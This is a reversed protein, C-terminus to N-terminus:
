ELKQEEVQKKAKMLNDKRKTTKMGSASPSVITSVDTKFMKHLNFDIWDWETMLKITFFICNEGSFSYGSTNTIFFKM